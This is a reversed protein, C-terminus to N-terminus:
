SGELRLARIRANYTDAIYLVGSARAMFLGVPENLKVQTPPGKERNFGAQGTGAFTTIMGNKDVKRVVSNHHEAIFVAGEGDVAIGWPDKFAAKTAPGGDGSYGKKGSGAITTIIGDKDVKRIRQNELDSIYINGESDLAVDYATLKAETAPGGDGSFGAEGTGAVTTITGSPDIKRVSVFDALYLNGKADFAIGGPDTLQASTAPGGDGSYGEKGTGAFTTIIGEKDVKRIRFNNEDSIYLNGERDVAVSIPINLDAKTAPGGDGSFGPWGTGAVTSITGDPDVKRVTHSGLGTCYIGADSIYMNGEADLAVDSTSCFGAETAPGGDGLESVTQGNGAVTKLTAAEEARDKAGSGCASLALVVLTVLLGLRFAQRLMRRRQPYMQEGEAVEGMSCSYSIEMLYSLDDSLNRM